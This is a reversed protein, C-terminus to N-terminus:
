TQGGYAPVLCAIFAKVSDAGVEEVHSHENCLLRDSM